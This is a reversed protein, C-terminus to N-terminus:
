SEERAKMAKYLTKGNPSAFMELRNIDDKTVDGDDDVDFQSGWSKSYFDEGMLERVLIIYKSDYPDHWAIRHNFINDVADDILMYLKRSM